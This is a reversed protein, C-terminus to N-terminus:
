MIAPLGTVVSHPEGKFRFHVLPNWKGQCVIQLLAYYFSIRVMYVAHVSDLVSSENENKEAIVFTISPRSLVHWGWGGLVERRFM